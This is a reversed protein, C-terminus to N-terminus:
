ERQMEEKYRRVRMEVGNAVFYGPYVRGGREEQCQRGRLGESIDVVELRDFWVGM